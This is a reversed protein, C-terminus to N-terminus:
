LNKIKRQIKKSADLGQAWFEVVKKKRDNWVDVFAPDELNQAFKSDAYIAL